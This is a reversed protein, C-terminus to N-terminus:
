FLGAGEYEEESVECVEDLRRALADACRSCLYRCGELEYFITEGEAFEHYCEACFRSVYELIRPTAEQRVFCHDNLASM